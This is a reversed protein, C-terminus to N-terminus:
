MAVSTPQAIVPTRVRMCVCARVQLGAYTCLHMCVCARGHACVAVGACTLVHQMRPSAHRSCVFGRM